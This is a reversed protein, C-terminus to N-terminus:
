CGSPPRRQDRRAGLRLPPQGVAAVAGRGRRNGDRLRRPLGRRLRTGATRADPRRIAGQRLQADLFALFSASQAYALRAEAEAAPFSASLSELPLMRDFLAAASLTVYERLGETRSERM